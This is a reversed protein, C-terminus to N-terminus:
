EGVAFLKNNFCSALAAEENMRKTRFRNKEAVKSYGFSTYRDGECNDRGKKNLRVNTNHLDREIFGMEDLLNYEALYAVDIRNDFARVENALKVIDLWKPEKGIRSDERDKDCLQHFVNSAMIANDREDYTPM